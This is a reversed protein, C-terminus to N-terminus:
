KEDKPMGPMDPMGPMGGSPASPKVGAVPAPNKLQSESDILFAGSAVVREGHKLGTLIQVRDGIRDGTTVQRPELYGNGRDVFV